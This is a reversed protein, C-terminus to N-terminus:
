SKIKFASFGKTALTYVAFALISALLVIVLAIRARSLGRQLQKEAYDPLFKAIVLAIIFNIPLFSGDDKILFLVAGTVAGLVAGAITQYNLWQKEDIKSVKEALSGPEPAKPNQNQEEPM